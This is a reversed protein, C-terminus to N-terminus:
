SIVASEADRLLRCAAIQRIRTTEQVGPQQWIAQEARSAFMTRANARRGLTRIETRIQQEAPGTIAAVTAALLEARRLEALRRGLEALATEEHGTALTELPGGALTRPISGTKLRYVIELRGITTPSYTRRKDLEIHLLVQWSIGHEEAFLERNAYRPDIQRRCPEASQAHSQSWM